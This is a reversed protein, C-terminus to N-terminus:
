EPPKRSFPSPLPRHPRWSEEKLGTVGEYVIKGTLSRKVVEALLTKRNCPFLRTLNLFFRLRDTVTIRKPVSLNLQVLMRVVEDRTPPSFQIDEVDLLRFGEQLVFVNCAKLDRQFIDRRLIDVLFGSFDGIFRRRDSADMRDYTRDLYRDLEEGRNGLDEMAIFGYRGFHRRQLFFPRPAIALDLYELIVHNEWARILRRKNKYIKRIHDTYREVRVKRDKKILATFEGRGGDKFDRLYIRDGEKMLKSTTSFARRRKSDIWGKRLRLLGTEVAKRIGPKGYRHFFREKEPETMQQYIMSLAHTLNKLEDAPFFRGKKVTTKHLDILYIRDEAAIVNELHLDNHRFGHRRLRGLLLALRDLLLNRRDPDEDFASKFTKGEIFEAVIFSGKKGVGYGLPAPVPISLSEMKRGLRYEKKGRAALKNRLLGGIGEEPFYKVFAKKDRYPRVSYTRRATEEEALGEIAEIVAEDDLLWSIGHASVRNM